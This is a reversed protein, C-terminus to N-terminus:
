STSSQRTRQWLEDICTQTEAADAPESSKDRNSLRMTELHRISFNGGSKPQYLFLYLQCAEGQYRWIQARGDDRKLAPPGFLPVLDDAKLGLLAAATPASQAPIVPPKTAKALNQNGTATMTTEAPASKNAPAQACASVLLAMVGALLKSHILRVPM